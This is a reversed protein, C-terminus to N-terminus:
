PRRINSVRRHRATRGPSRRSQGTLQGVSKHIYLSPSIPFFLVFLFSFVSSIRPQTDGFLSPRFSILFSLLSFQYVQITVPRSVYAREPEKAEGSVCGILHESQVETGRMGASNRLIDM